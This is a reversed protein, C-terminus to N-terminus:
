MPAAATVYAEPTIIQMPAQAILVDLFTDVLQAPVGAARWVDALALSGPVSGEFIERVAREDELATRRREVQVRVSDFGASEILSELSEKHFAQPGLAAQAIEKLADWLRGMSPDESPIQMDAALSESFSLRAQPRLVRRAEALIGVRDRAYALLGRWVIVDAAGDAIPLRTADACVFSAGLAPVSRAEHLRGADIDIGIAAGAEEAAPYTLLGSGCGLDIVDATPPITAQTLIRDRIEGLEAMRRIARGRGLAPTLIQHVFWREWIEAARM